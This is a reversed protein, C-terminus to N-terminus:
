LARRIYSSGEGISTGLFPRSGVCNTAAKVEVGLSMGGWRHSCFVVIYLGNIDSYKKCKTLALSAGCKGTLRQFLLISLQREQAGILFGSGTESRTKAQRAKAQTAM